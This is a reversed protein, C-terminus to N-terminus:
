PSIYYGLVKLTDNIQYMGPKWRRDDETVMDVKNLLNYWFESMNDCEPLRCSIGSVVMESQNLCIKVELSIPNPVPFICTSGERIVM